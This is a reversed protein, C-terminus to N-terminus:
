TNFVRGSALTEQNILSCGGAVVKSERKRTRIYESMAELSCHEMDDMEFTCFKERMVQGHTVLRDMM